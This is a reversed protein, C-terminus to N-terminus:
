RSPAGFFHYRYPPTQVKLSFQCALGARELAIISRQEDENVRVYHMSFPWAKRLWGDVARVLLDPLKSGQRDERV